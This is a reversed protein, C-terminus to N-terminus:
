QAFMDEMQEWDLWEAPGLEEWVSGGLQVDPLKDFGIGPHELPVHRCSFPICTVKQPGSLLRAGSGWRFVIVQAFLEEMQEWDLWEAPALGESVSGGM